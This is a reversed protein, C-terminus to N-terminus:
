RSSRPSAVGGPTSASAASEPPYARCDAPCRAAAPVMGTAPASMACVTGTSDTCVLTRGTAQMGCEGPSVAPVAIYAFRDGQPTRQFAFRYGARVPELLSPRAAALKVGPPCRSANALCELSVYSGTTRHAHEEADHVARLDAGARSQNQSQRAAHMDAVGTLWFPSTVAMFLVLQAVGRALTAAVRTLRQHDSYQPDIGRMLLWAALALVPIALFVWGFTCLWAFGVPIAALAAIALALALGARAGDSM